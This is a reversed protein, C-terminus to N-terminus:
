IATIIVILDKQKQFLASCFYKNVRKSVNQVAVVIGSTCYVKKITLLTPHQPITQLTNLINSCVCLSNLFSASSDTNMM